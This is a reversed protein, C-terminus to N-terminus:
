ITAIIKFYQAFRRDADLYLQEAADFEGFFARVEAKRINENAISQLRRVFHIAYLDQLYVFATEATEYQGRETAIRAM